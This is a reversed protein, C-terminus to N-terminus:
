VVSKRDRVQCYHETAEAGKVVATLVDREADHTFEIVASVIGNLHLTKLINGFSFKNEDM